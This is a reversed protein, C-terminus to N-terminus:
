ERSLAELEDFIRKTADNIRREILRPRAEALSGLDHEEFIQELESAQERIEDLADLLRQQERNVIAQDRLIAAQRAELTEVAQRLQANQAAFEAMRRQSDTYYFYAAGVLALVALGAIIYILYPGIIKKAIFGLM